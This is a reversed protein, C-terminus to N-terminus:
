TKDGRGRKDKPLTPRPRHRKHRELKAGPVHEPLRVRVRMGCGPMAVVNSWPSVHLTTRNGLAAWAEADEQTYRVQGTPITFWHPGHGHQRLRRLQAVSVKLFKSAEREDMLYCGTMTM